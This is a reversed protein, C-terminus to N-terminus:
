KLKVLKVEKLKGAKAEALSKELSKRNAETSLLYSTEDKDGAPHILIEVEGDNKFLKKITKLFNSDLESVKVRFVTEM